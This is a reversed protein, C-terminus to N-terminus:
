KNKLKNKKGLTLIFEKQIWLYFLIFLIFLIIRIM